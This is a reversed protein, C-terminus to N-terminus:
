VCIEWRNALAPHGQAPKRLEAPFSLADIEDLHEPTRASKISNVQEKSFGAMRLDFEIDPSPATLDRLSRAGYGLL